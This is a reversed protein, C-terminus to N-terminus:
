FFYSLSISLYDENRLNYGPELYGDSSFVYANAVISISNNIRQNYEMKITNSAPNKVDVLVGFLIEMDDIDNQVWRAAIFIDNDNLSGIAQDYQYEFLLGLDSRYSNIGVITYEAGGVWAYSSQKVSKRHLAELKYIWSGSIQLLELSAQSLSDYQAEIIGNNVEFGPERQTGNFYSLAIDTDNFSHAWRIAWDVGAEIKHCSLDGEENVSVDLLRLRSETGGFNLTRYCPLIFSEILGTDTQYSLNVMPQGLKTEGDIDSRLNKQNIVDVLHRSETVGWFVSSIGVKWEIRDSYGHLFLDRIDVHTRKSDYADVLAYPTFQWYGNSIEGEIESEFHIAPNVKEQNENAHNFLRVEMKIENSFEVVSAHLPNIILIM